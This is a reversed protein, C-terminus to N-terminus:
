AAASDPRSLVVLVQREVLEEIFEEIEQRIQSEPKKSHSMIELIIDEIGHRGDALEWIRTGAANLVFLKKQKAQIILTQNDIICSASDAGRLPYGDTKM